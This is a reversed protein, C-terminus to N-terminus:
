RWTIAVHGLGVVVQRRVARAIAAELGVLVGLEGHGIPQVGGGEDAEPGVEAAAAVTSAHVREHLGDVAAGVGGGRADADDAAVALERGDEAPDRVLARLRPRLADKM